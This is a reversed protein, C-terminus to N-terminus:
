KKSNLKKKIFPFTFVDTNFSPCLIDLLPETGFILQLTSIILLKMPTFQFFFFYFYSAVIQTDKKFPTKPNKSSFGNFGIM